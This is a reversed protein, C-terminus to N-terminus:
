KQVSVKQVLFPLTFKVWVNQKQIEELVQWDVLPLLGTLMLRSKLEKQRRSLCDNIAGKELLGVWWLKKISAQSAKAHGLWGPPLAAKLMKFPSVHCKIAVREVWEKWSPEVAAKQLVAEISSLDIKKNRDDLRVVLGHMARGKLRVLVFDGVGVGLEKGDQYTFCRGTRGVDLWVDIEKIGM